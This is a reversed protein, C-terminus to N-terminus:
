PYEPLPPMSLLGQSIYSWRRSTERRSLGNKWMGQVETHIRWFQGHSEVWLSLYVVVSGQASHALAIFLPFLTPDEALIEEALTGRKERNERNNERTNLFSFILFYILSAFVSHPYCYIESTVHFTNKYIVRQHTTLSNHILLLSFVLNFLIYISEQQSSPHTPKRTQIQKLSYWVNNIM